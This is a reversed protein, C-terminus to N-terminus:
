SETPKGTIKGTSSCSLGGPLGTVTWTITPTGSAELQKSYSAGVIGTPLSTTTITPAVVASAIVVTFDKTATRGNADKVKLRFSYTKAVTPTGKLYLSNGSKSMRLGPPITGNDNTWTHPSKGGNVTVYDSYEQGAKGNRFDYKITPLLYISLPIEKTTSDVPNKATIKPKFTGSATPTGTIQGTSSCSLGPPLGTASWTIPTTGSASLTESYSESVYGDKLTTTSISPPVNVTITLNKYDYSSNNATVRFSYAGSAGSGVTGSITGDTTLSLGPPLSGNTVSWDIPQTGSAQLIYYYYEGATANPLSKTSISPPYIRKRVTVTLTKTDSGGPNTVTIPFKVTYPPTRNTPTGMVYGPTGEILGDTCLGIMWDQVDFGNVLAESSNLTYTIPTTGSVQVQESYPEGIYADPLSTTKIKPAVPTERVTITFTKPASTGVHNTATVPFSLTYPLTRNSVNRPTGKIVGDTCKGILWEQLDFGNTWVSSTGGTFYIPTTGTADVKAYYPIGIYADPLTETIIRPATDNYIDIYTLSGCGNRNISTVRNGRCQIQELASCGYFASEGIM